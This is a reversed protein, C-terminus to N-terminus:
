RVFDLVDQHLVSFDQPFNWQIERKPSKLVPLEGAGAEFLPGKHEGFEESRQKELADTSEHMMYQHWLEHKGGAQRYRLARRKEAEEYDRLERRLLQLVHRAERAASEDVGASSFVRRELNAIEAEISERKECNVPKRLEKQEHAAANYMEKCHKRALERSVELKELFNDKVESLGPRPSVLPARPAAMSSTRLM